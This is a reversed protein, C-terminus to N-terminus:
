YIILQSSFCECVWFHVGLVELEAASVKAVLKINIYLMIQSSILHIFNINNIAPQVLLRVHRVARRGRVRRRTLLGGVGAALLEGRRLAVERLVVEPERQEVVGRVVSVFAEFM